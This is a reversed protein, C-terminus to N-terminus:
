PIMPFVFVHILYSQYSIKHFKSDKVEWCITFHYFSLIQSITRIHWRTVLKQWRDKPWDIEMWVTISRFMEIRLNNIHIPNLYPHFTLFTFLECQYINRIRNIFELDRRTTQIQFHNLACHDINLSCICIKLVFSTHEIDTCDYWPM